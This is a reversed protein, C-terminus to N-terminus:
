SCLIHGADIQLLYSSFIQRRPSKACHEISLAAENDNRNLHAAWREGVSEDSLNYAHKLYLLGAMLRIRLRPRGAASLGASALQPATGFLDIGESAVEARDRHAFLPAFSAEIQAWPMRTALVALPHRPDIMADLRCRFFDDTM